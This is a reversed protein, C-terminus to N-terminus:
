IVGPAVAERTANKYDESLSFIFEYVIFINALTSIMILFIGAPDINKDLAFFVCYFVYVIMWTYFM